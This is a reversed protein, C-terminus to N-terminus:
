SVPVYTENAGDFKRAQFSVMVKGESSTLTVPVMDGIELPKKLMMLMVHNAGPKLEFTGGAPVTFGGKTAQMVMKGDAAKVTEHMEIMGAVDAMGGTLTVDTSGTNKLTGFCGTMSKMEAMMSDSSKCWGDTLTLSLAGAAAPASSQSSSSPAATGSGCAALTLLAGTALASRVFKM